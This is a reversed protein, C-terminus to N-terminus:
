VRCILLLEPLFRFLGLLVPVGMDGYWDRWVWGEVVVSMVGVGVM